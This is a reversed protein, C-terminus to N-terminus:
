DELGPDGGAVKAGDFVRSGAGGVPGAKGQVVDLVSGDGGLNAGGGRRGRQAHYEVRFEKGFAAEL